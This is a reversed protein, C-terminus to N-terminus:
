KEILKNHTEAFHSWSTTVDLDQLQSDWDIDELAANIPMYKGKFFNLKKLEEEETKLENYWNFDFLLLLHDSTCLGATFEMESIM